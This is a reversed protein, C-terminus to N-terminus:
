LASQRWSQGGGFCFGVTVIAGIGSERLNAIAAAADAAIHDSSVRERHAMYDFDDGRRGVGATRGFYDIAIAALGHEAFRQALARYYDHLGRVDPLILVGARAGDRPLARHAMFQSGDASSLVLDAHAGLNEALEPIPPRANEAFCM